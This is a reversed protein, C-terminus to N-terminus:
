VDIREESEAAASCCCGRSESAASVAASNELDIRRETSEVQRSAMTTDGVQLFRAVSAWTWM